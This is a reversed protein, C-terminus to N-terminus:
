GIAVPDIKFLTGDLDVAATLVPNAGPFNIMRWAAMDRNGGYLPDSLYGEVTNQWVLQFFIASSLGDLDVKGGELLHIVDERQGQDLEAFRKGQEGVCWRDLAQMGSRYIQAPTLPLQWGQSPTGSAWPGALYWRSGAGFQGALERDIFTVVGSDVAGPGLADAPILRDVMATVTEVEANNLFRYGQPGPAPVNGPQPVQGPAAAPAPPPPSTAADTQATARGSEQLALATTLGAVLFGRRSTEAMHDSDDIM